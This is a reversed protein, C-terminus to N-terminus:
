YAMRTPMSHMANNYARNLILHPLHSLSTIPPLRLFRLVPGRLITTTTILNYPSFPADATTLRPRHDISRNHHSSRVPPRSSAFSVLSRILVIGRLSEVNLSVKVNRTIHELASQWDTRANLGARYSFECVYVLKEDTLDPWQILKLPVVFSLAFLKNVSWLFLNGKRRDSRPPKSDM